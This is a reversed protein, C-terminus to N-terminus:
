LLYEILDIYQQGIQNITYNRRIFERSKDGVYQRYEASTILKSLASYWEEETNCILVERNIYSPVASAVAPIGVSMPYAVKTLTHGLNYPQSLDRPALKIDGKLFQESFLKNDIKVFEVPIFDIEPPKNSLSVLDVQFEKHLTILVDKILELEVAKLAYGAYLLRVKGDRHVKKHKFYEAAVSEEVTFVREHYRSYIEGLKPSATLVFDSVELMNRIDVNQQEISEQQSQNFIDIAGELEIININMDLMIKAGAAAFGEAQKMAEQDFYKQFVVLDYKEGQRVFEAMHGSKNMFRIVDYARLRTSTTATFYEKEQEVVFGIRYKPKRNFM